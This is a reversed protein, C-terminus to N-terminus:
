QKEQKLCSGLGFGHLKNNIIIFGLAYCTNKKEECPMYVYYCFQGSTEYNPKGFVEKIQKPSLQKLCKEYNKKLDSIFFHDHIYYNNKKDYFWQEEVLKTLGKCDVPLKKEKISSRLDTLQQRPYYKSRPTCTAIFISLLIIVYKM